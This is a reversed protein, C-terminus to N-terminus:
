VSLVSMMFRCPLQEQSGSIGPGVAPLYVERRQTVLPVHGSMLSRRNHLRVASGRGGLANVSPMIVRDISVNINLGHLTLAFWLVGGPALPDDRGGRLLGGGGHKDVAPFIM